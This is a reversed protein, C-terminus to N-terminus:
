RSIRVVLDGGGPGTHEISGLRPHMYPAADKALAAAEAAAKADVVSGDPALASAWRARMARVMVELPTIGEEAARRAIERSTKNAVGKPRGAGQRRGGKAM